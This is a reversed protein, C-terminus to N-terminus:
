NFRTDAVTSSPKMATTAVEQPVRAAAGPVESEGAGVSDAVALVGSALGEDDSLATALGPTIASQGALILL